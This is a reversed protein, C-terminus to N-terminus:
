VIKGLGMVETDLEHRVTVSGDLFGSGKGRYDPVGIESFANM